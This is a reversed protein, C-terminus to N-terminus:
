LSVSNSKGTNPKGTGDGAGKLLMPALLKGPVRDNSYGFFLLSDSAEALVKVTDEDIANYPAGFTVPAVGLVKKM